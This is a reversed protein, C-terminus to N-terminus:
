RGDDGLTYDHGVTDLTVVRGALLDLGLFGAIRVGSLRSRLSLDAANVHAGAPTAAGAVHLVVNEVTRAGRRAGGYTRVDSPDGIRAGEISGAFELDLLTRSAGTDLLFLGSEGGAVRARVLVQGNITWFPESGPPPAEGAERPAQLLLRGRKLDLTVLYGTFPTLGIFGRYPLSLDIAGGSTTALADSYELGGLRFRGFLGRGSRHRGSGGGGFTTEEALPEFGRKRAVRQSVFLGPSGTDLLLPVARRRDGLVVPITFGVVSGGDGSLRRLSVEVQSPREEPVWVRREGLARQLRLSGRAAEIRDADDDGAAALYRELVRIREKRDAQLGASWFLVHPDEDGQEVAAGALRVAEEHDGRASRLLALTVLGRPPVKSREIGSLVADAEELRGARYLAEGLCSLVDQDSPRAKRLSEALAVAERWRDAALLDRVSAATEAPDPPPIAPAASAVASALIGAVVPGIRLLRIM